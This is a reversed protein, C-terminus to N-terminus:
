CPASLLLQYNKLFFSSRLKGKSINTGQYRNGINQHSTYNGKRGRRLFILGHRVHVLNMDPINISNERTIAPQGLLPFYNYM